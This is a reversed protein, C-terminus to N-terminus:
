GAVSIPDAAEATWTDGHASLTPAHTIAAPTSPGVAVTITIPPYSRQPALIDTRACTIPPALDCTWGPGGASTATLGAPLDSLVTVPSGDTPSTSGNTVTVTLTAPQGRTFTAPTHTARLRLPSPIRVWPQPLNAVEGFALPLHYPVPNVIAPIPEASPVFRDAVVHGSASVLGFCYGLARARDIIMAVAQVTAAGAPTDIPGDHMGIIV